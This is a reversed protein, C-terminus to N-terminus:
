NLCNRYRLMSGYNSILESESLDTEVNIEGNELGEGIASCLGDQGIKEVYNEVGQIEIDTEIGSEYPIVETGEIIYKADGLIIGISSDEPLAKVVQHEELYAPLTESNTLVGTKENIKVPRVLFYIGILVLIVIILFIWLGVRKGSKNKKKSM